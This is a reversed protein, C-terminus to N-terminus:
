KCKIIGILYDNGSPNKVYQRETTEYSGHCLESAKKEWEQYANGSVGQYVRLNYTNSDIRTHFANTACGFFSFMSVLVMLVKIRKM